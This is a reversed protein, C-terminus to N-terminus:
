GSKIGCSSRITWRSKLSCIDTKQERDDTTL